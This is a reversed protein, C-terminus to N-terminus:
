SSGYETVSCLIFNFIHLVAEILFQFMYEICERFVMHFYQLSFETGFYVLCKQVLLQFNLKCSIRLSLPTLTTFKSVDLVRMILLM